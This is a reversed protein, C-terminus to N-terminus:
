ASNRGSSSEPSSANASSGQPEEREVGCHMACDHDRCGGAEPFTERANASAILASVDSVQPLEHYGALSYGILQYFQEWDAQAFSHASLENLGFGRRRAEDLLTCVIANSLFRITGHPDKVFPQM